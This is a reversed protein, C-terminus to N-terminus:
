NLEHPTTWYAAGSLRRLVERSAISVRGRRAVIGGERELAQLAVTIGPRRVGLFCSFDEHIFPLEDSGLKDEAMLLWGALKQQVNCRASSVITRAADVMLGHIYVLVRRHLDPDERVATLFARRKMRWALGPVRVVAPGIVRFKGLLAAAGIMGERGVFATDMLDSGQGGTISVLGSEIFFIDADADHEQRLVEKSSLQSSVMSKQLNALQGASLSALIQNRYM